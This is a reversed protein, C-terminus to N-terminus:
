IHFNLHFHIISELSLSAIFASSAYKRALDFLFILVFVIYCAIFSPLVSTHIMELGQHKFFNQEQFVSQLNFDIHFLGIIPSWVLFM